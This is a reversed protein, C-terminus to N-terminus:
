VRLRLGHHTPGPWFQSTRLADKRNNQNFTYVEKKILNIEEAVIGKKAGFKYV